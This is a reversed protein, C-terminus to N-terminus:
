VVKTVVVPVPGGPNARGRRGQPQASAAPSAAGKEAASAAAGFGLKQAMEDRYVYGAGGVAAAIVAIVALRVMRMGSEGSGWGWAPNYASGAEGSLRFRRKGM